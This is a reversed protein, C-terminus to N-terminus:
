EGDDGVEEDDALDQKVLQNIVDHATRDPAQGERLECPTM